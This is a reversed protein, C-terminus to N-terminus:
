LTVLIHCKRNIINSYSEQFIGATENIRDLSLIFYRDYTDFYFVDESYPILKSIHVKTKSQDPYYLLVKDTKKDKYNKGIVLKLGNILHELTYSNIIKYNGVLLQNLQHLKTKM